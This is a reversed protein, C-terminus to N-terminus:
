AGRSYGGGTRRVEAKSREARAHRAIWEGFEIMDALEKDDRGALRTRAEAASGALPLDETRHTRTWLSFMDAVFMARGFKALQEGFTRLAELTGETGEAVM